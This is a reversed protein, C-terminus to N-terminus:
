SRVAELAERYVREIHRVAARGDVHKAAAASAAALRGREDPDDVLREIADGLASMDGPSVLLGDVDHEIMDPLGGVATSVVPLGLARAEVFAVPLGERHSALVFVDFGAM